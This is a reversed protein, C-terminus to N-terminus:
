FTGTTIAGTPQFSASWEVRGDVSTSTSYDTFLANGSKKVLGGTNGAPGFEYAVEAGDNTGVAVADMTAHWPGSVTISGSGLGAIYTRATLGFVTTELTDRVEDLSQSDLYPTIDTADLLLYSNHGPVFAM